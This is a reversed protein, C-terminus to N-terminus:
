EWVKGNGMRYWLGEERFYTVKHALSLVLLSVPNRSNFIKGREATVLYGEALVPGSAAARGRGELHKGM